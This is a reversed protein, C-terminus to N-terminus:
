LSITSIRPPSIIAWSLPSGTEPRSVLAPSTPRVMERAAWSEALLRKLPITIRSSRGKWMPSQIMTSSTSPLTSSM